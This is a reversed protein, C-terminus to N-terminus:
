RGAQAPRLAAGPALGPHGRTPALVTHQADAVGISQGFFASRAPRCARRGAQATPRTHPRPRATEPRAADRYTPAAAGIGPWAVARIWGRRGLWSRLETGDRM